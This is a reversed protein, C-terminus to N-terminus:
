KHSGKKFTNNNLGLGILLATGIKFLSKLKINGMKRIIRRKDITVVQETLALSRKSFCAGKVRVHTPIHAKTQRSTVPVVITTPSYKNGINNQVIVAPRVGGQESGYGKGFDVLYVEGRYVRM